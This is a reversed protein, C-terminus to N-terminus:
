ISNTFPFVNQNKKELDIKSKTEDLVKLVDSICDGCHTSALTVKRIKSITDAGERIAKELTKRDVSKCLCIKKTRM